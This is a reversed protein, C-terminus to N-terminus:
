DPYLALDERDLNEWYSGEVTEVRYMSSRYWNSLPNVQVFSLDKRVSELLYDWNVYENFNHIIDTVAVKLKAALIQQLALWKSLSSEAFTLGFYGACCPGKLAALGRTLFLELADITEPPDTLFTDFQRCLEAPLRKRVDQRYIEIELHHSDALAQIFRILRPDIELVAVRRPLRSLAAAVSVLDDDGIILLDKGKIDGKAALLAVRAVTTEPTVYGQDYEFIAKPRGQVMERFTNLLKNFASLDLGRGACAKCAGDALPSIERVQAEGKGKPTLELSHDKQVVLGEAILEKIIEAVTNVPLCSLTIVGWFESSAMLAGIVREVERLYIKAGASRSAKQAIQALM